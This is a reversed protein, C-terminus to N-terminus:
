FLRLSPTKWGGALASAAHRSLAWTIEETAMKRKRRGLTLFEM